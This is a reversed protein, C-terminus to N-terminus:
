VGARRCNKSSEEKFMEDKRGWGEEGGAWGWEGLTLLVRWQKGDGHCRHLLRAQHPTPPVLGSMRSEPELTPLPPYHVASFLVANPFSGGRLLGSQSPRGEWRRTGWIAAAWKKAEEGAVGGLGLEKRHLWSYWVTGVWGGQQALGSVCGCTVQLQGCGGLGGCSTVQVTWGPGAERDM